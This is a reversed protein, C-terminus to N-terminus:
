LLTYLKEEGMKVEEWKVKEMKEDLDVLLLNFLLSSLPCGQRIGRATCFSEGMEKGVRVRSRTKRIIEKVREVLGGRVGRKRMAEILVKRNVSDFAARIDVFM